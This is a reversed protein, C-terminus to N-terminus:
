AFDITVYMWVFTIIVFLPKQVNYTSPAIAMITM